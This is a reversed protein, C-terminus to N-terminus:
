VTDNGRKSRGLEHKGKGAEAASPREKGVVAGGSDDASSGLGARPAIVALRESTDAVAGVEVAVHSRRGMARCRRLRM